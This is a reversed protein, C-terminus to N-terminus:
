LRLASLIRNAVDDPSALLWSANAKIALSGSSPSAFKLRASRASEGTDRFLAAERVISLTACNSGDPYINVEAGGARLAALVADSALRTQHWLDIQSPLSDLALLAAPWMQYLGGGQRRREHFLGDLAAAPGALVAGFPATLYKYLSLYVFDFPKAIESPSRGTWASEIFVRAGDLLLPIGHTNAVAVVGDRAAQDFIRNHLRRSPTEIVIGGITAKVRASAARAIEALVQEPDFGAGRGAVPVLTIGSATASDGADNFVHSDRHVIVRPGPGRAMLQLALRNAMTGTPVMVAREKDFVTAVARELAEVPGGDGYYDAAIDGDATLDALRRAMERPTPVIGDDALNIFPLDSGM